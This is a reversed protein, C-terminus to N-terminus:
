NQLSVIWNGSQVAASSIPPIPFGAQRRPNPVQELTIALIPQPLLLVVGLLATAWARPMIYDLGCSGQNYLNLIIVDTSGLVSLSEEYESM